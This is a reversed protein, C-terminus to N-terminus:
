RNTKSDDDRIGDKCSSTNRISKRDTHVRILAGGDIDCNASKRSRVIGVQSFPVKQDHGSAEFSCNTDSKNKSDGERSSSARNVSKRAGVYRRIVNSNNQGNNTAGRELRSDNEISRVIGIQSMAVKQDRGCADPTFNTNSDGESSSSTRNISKRAGAYRRIVESNQGNSAAGGESSCASEVSRIIGVQSTALKQDRGSVESSYHTDRNDDSDGERSSSAHNISKRAGSYRRIL